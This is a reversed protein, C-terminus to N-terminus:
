PSRCPPLTATSSHRSHLRAAERRQGALHTPAAPPPSPTPRHITIPMRISRSRLAEMRHIPPTRIRISLILLTRPISLTPTLLMRTHSSSSRPEMFNTTITNLRSPNTSLRTSTHLPSRSSRM